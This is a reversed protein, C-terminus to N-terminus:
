AGDRVASGGTPAGPAVLDAVMIITVHFEKNVARFADLVRAASESDLEATPEDALLISPTNSLAAAIAVRQQEGGSLM